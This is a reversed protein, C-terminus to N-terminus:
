ENDNEKISYSCLPEYICNSCKLSNTQKFSSLSFSNLDNITKEFKELMEKDDEPKKIPYVKNDVMSYFRIDNVVYGMELLAFYQAYLQFIYGDYINKIQRKRETLIGKSIDFIDIKGMLNYKDCYVSIGQLIDKRDSYNQNDISEHSYTGNIQYDSQYLTKDTDSDVSHFYISVPCFIFDNLTTIAITDEM